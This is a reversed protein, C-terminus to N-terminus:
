NIVPKIVACREAEFASKLREFMAEDKYTGIISGGSGAFKASAGLERALEVMRIHKPNLNYITRRTDFNLNMLRALEDHDRHLLCERAQGALGAIRHIADVVLQEGNDYRKRIDNHFVESSEALETQYAIYVPPLLGIDLPEYRGHGHEDMFQKDFDMHVLGEYVQAVRDQLGAGIGLEDREVSLILGPLIEKPITVDYFRCLARMTATVIASSGALGVQRPINSEYRLSFNEKALKINHQRCYEAFRKISAKILRLGGYYGNLRTDHLFEELGDFRCNDQRTPIIELQPWEYIIVTASFNKVILSITKGYYGDSPNGILGARAYAQTKFIRM